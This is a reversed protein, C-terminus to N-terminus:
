REMLEATCRWWPNPQNVAHIRRYTLKRIRYDGEAGLDSVLPVNADTTAATKLKNLNAQTEVHFRLSRGESKVGAYHLTTDTAELVQIEGYIPEETGDDEDVHITVNALSWAM